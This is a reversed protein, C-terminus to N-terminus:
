RSRPATSCVIAKSYVKGVAAGGAALAFPTTNPREPLTWKVVGGMGIKKKVNERCAENVWVSRGGGADGGM